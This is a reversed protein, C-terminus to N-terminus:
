TKQNRHNPEVDVLAQYSNPLHKKIEHVPIPAEIIRNTNCVSVVFNSDESAKDDSKKSYQSLEPKIVKSEKLYFDRYDSFDLQSALVYFAANTLVLLSLATQNYLLMLGSFILLLIPELILRHMRASFKFIKFLYALFFAGSFLNPINTSTIEPFFKDRAAAYLYNLGLLIIGVIMFYEVAKTPELDSILSPYAATFSEQDMTDIPLFHEINIFLFMPHSFLSIPHFIPIPRDITPKVWEVPQHDIYSQTWNEHGITFERLNYAVALINYIIILFFFLVLFKRSFDWRLLFLSPFSLFYLFIKLWM